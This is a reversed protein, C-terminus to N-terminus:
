EEATEVPHGQQRRRVIASAVKSAAPEEGHSRFIEELQQEDLTRLLESAPRGEHPDFRMDLPGGADFGFGRQRDSLQDSSLGLDLLVRDVGKINLEQLVESSDAFSSQILHCNSHALKQSALKVMMPDRDLGILQGAEGLGVIGFRVFQAFMARM